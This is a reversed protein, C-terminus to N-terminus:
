RGIGEFIAKLTEVNPAFYYDGHTLLAINTLEVDNVDYGFGITYVTVNRDRCYVAGNVSDGVNAKGDTLLVVVKTANARARSSVLESCGNVLGCEICTWGSPILANIANKLAQQNSSTMMALLKDTTASTSYSVLGAQINNGAIDIFSNAANQTAVMKTPQQTLSFLKNYATCGSGSRKLWLDVTYPESYSSINVSRVISGYSTSTRNGTAITVGNITANFFVTCGSTSARLEVTLNALDGNKQIVDLKKVWSWGTSAASVVNSNKANTVPDAMSGSRDLVLMLDVDVIGFSDNYIGGVNGLSDVCQYYIYYYGVELKGVNYSFRETPSDWAGDDPIAANWNGSGIKVNCGQINSNGTYEDTAVGGVSVNSLTTPWETHNMEIVIPGLTDLESVKFYYYALPGTNGAADTCNARITHPGLSFGATYNYVSVEEVQDYAGDVPLMNKWDESNDADITCGTITSNGTFVDTANVFIAVPRFKIAPTPDQYIATILPGETDNTFPQSYPIVEVIISIDVSDRSGAGDDATFEIKGSYLGESEYSATFQLDIIDLEDVDLSFAVPVGSMTVDIATWTTITSVNINKDWINKVSFSSEDTSNSYMILYIKDKSLEIMADGIRVRNGESTVWVWHGGATKPLFGRVNFPLTSLYDTEAVKIKITKNGVFSSSASYGSPIEVFVQKRAGIGQAYVDKAAAALDEVTNKADSITKQQTITAVREQSILIASILVVMAVALILLFEISTQGKRM